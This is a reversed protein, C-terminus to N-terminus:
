EGAGEDLEDLVRRLEDAQELAARAEVRARTGAYWAPTWQAPAGNDRGVGHRGAGIAVVASRNRILTAAFPACSRLGVLLGLM